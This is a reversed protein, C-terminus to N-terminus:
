LQSKASQSKFSIKNATELYLKFIPHEKGLHLLKEKTQEAQLMNSQQTTDEEMSSIKLNKEAQKEDFDPALKEVSLITTRTHRM